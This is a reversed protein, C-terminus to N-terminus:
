MDCVLFHNCLVKPRLDSQPWFDPGLYCESHTLLLSRDFKRPGLAQHFMWITTIAAKPGEGFTFTAVYASIRSNLLWTSSHLYKWQEVPQCHIRSQELDRRGKPSPSPEQTPLVEQDKTWSCSGWVYLDFVCCLEMVSIPVAPAAPNSSTWDLQLWCCFGGDFSFLFPKSNHALKSVVTFFWTAAGELLAESSMLCNKARGRWGLFRDWKSQYASSPCLCKGENNLSAM